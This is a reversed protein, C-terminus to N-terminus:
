FSLSFITRSIQIPQFLINSKTAPRFYQSCQLKCLRFSVQYFITVHDLLVLNVARACSGGQVPSDCSGTMMMGMYFLLVHHKRRRNKSMRWFFFPSFLVPFAGSERGWKTLAKIQITYTFLASGKNLEFGTQDLKKILHWDFTTRKWAVSGRRGTAIKSALMQRTWRGNGRTIRGVPCVAQCCDGYGRTTNVDISGHVYARVTEQQDPISQETM